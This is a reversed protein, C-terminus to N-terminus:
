PASVDKDIGSGHLVALQQKDWTTQDDRLALATM